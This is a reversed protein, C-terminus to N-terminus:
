KGLQNMLREVEIKLQQYRKWYDDREKKIKYAEADSICKSVEKEEFESDEPAESETEKM